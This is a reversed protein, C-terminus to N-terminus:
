KMRMIKDINEVIVLMDLPNIRKKEDHIKVIQITKMKELLFELM